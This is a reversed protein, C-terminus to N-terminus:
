EKDAGSMTKNLAIDGRQGHHCGLIAKMNVRSWLSQEVVHLVQDVVERKNVVVMKAQRQVPICVSLLCGFTPLGM